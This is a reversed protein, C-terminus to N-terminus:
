PVDHHGGGSPIPTPTRNPLDAYMEDIANRIEVVSQGLAYRRSAEYGVDICIQCGLGHVEWDTVKGSADRGAVFCDHNGKHGGSECGCFCPIFNMVEPHRAAFEYAAKTVNVPRAAREVGNPLLPLDAAIQRISPQAAAQAGAPPTSNKSCSAAVTAVALVAFGITTLKTWRM